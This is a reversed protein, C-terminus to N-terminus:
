EAKAFVIIRQDNSADTCTSLTIEMAGDTDRNYFSTDNEAAQFTKYVVYTVKKNNLDTIYIKDGNKLKKNNSFFLGNRYNHGVIVINGPKNVEADQPYLAVVSTALKKVTPPAELIPFNIKTTPIEITGIVNFGKYTKKAKKGTTNTTNVTEIGEILNQTTENETNSTNTKNTDTQEVVDEGAFTSVYKEADSSTKYGSYFRYGLFGLLGIIGLIILVLLVTLFKNYKMEM